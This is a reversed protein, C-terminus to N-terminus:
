DPPYQGMAAQVAEVHRALWDANSEGSERHTIVERRIGGSTWETKVTEVELAVAQALRREVSMVYGGGVVLLLALAILIIARM